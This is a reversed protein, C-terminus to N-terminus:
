LRSFFGCLSSVFLNAGVFFWFFGISHMQSGGAPHAWDVSAVKTIGNVVSPFPVEVIEETILPLPWDVCQEVCRESVREQPNVKVEAPFSRVFEVIEEHCPPRACRRSAGIHSDMGGCRWNFALEDRHVAVNVYRDWECTNPSRHVQM